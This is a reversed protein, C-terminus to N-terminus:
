LAYWSVVLAVNKVFDEVRRECAHKTWGGIYTRAYAFMAFLMMVCLMSREHSIEEKVRATFIKKSEEDGPAYFLIM